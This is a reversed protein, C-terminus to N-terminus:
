GLKKYKLLHSLKGSGPKGNIWLFKSLATSTYQPFFWEKFTDDDLLWQCTGPYEARIRVLYLQENEMETPKLWAYVAQRRKLDESDMTTLHQEEEVTFTNLSSDFQSINEQGSILSLRSGM